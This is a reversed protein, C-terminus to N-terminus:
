TSKLERFSKAQWATRVYDCDDIVLGDHCLAVDGVEVGCLVLAYTEEGTWRIILAVCARRYASRARAMFVQTNETVSTLFM